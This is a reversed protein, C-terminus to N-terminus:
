IFSFMFYWFRRQTLQSHKSSCSFLASCAHFLSYFWPLPVSAPNIAWPLFLGSTLLSFPLSLSVPLLSCPREREACLVRMIVHEVAARLPKLRVPCLCKGSSAKWLIQCQLLVDSCLPSLPDTVAASCSPFTLGSQLSLRLPETGIGVCWFGGGELALALYISSSCFM